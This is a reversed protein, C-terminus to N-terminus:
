LQWTCIEFSSGDTLTLQTWRDYCRGVEFVEHPSEADLIRGIEATLEAQREAALVKARKEAAAAHDERQRAEATGSAHKAAASPLKPQGPKRDCTCQACTQRRCNL